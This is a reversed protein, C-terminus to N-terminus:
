IWGRLTSCLFNCSLIKSEFTGRCFNYHAPVKIEFPGWWCSFYIHVRSNLKM